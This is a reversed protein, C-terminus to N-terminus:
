RAGGCNLENQTERATHLHHEFSPEADALLQAIRRDSADPLLDNRVTELVIQHQNVQNELFQCNLDQGRLDALSNHVSSAQMAIGRSLPSEDLQFGGEASLERIRDNNRTHDEIIQQATSRLEDSNTNRAVLEAQRIEAENVVQLVHLIEGDSLNGSVTAAARTVTQSPTNCATLAFAAGLVAAGLASKRSHRINM